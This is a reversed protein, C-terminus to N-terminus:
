PRSFEVEAPRSPEGQSEDPAQYVIRYAAKGARPPTPDIAESGGLPGTVHTWSDGNGVRRQVVAGAGAPPPSFTIKVHRFPSAVLVAGPPPPQPLASSGVRVPRPRNPESRNGAADIAVLSYWYSEGVAVLTDTFSHADAALPGAIVLGRDTASGSRLVLIGTTDGAPPAPAFQVTVSGGNGSLDLTRPPAPPITDPLTAKVAESPASEQNDFAVAIIRYRLSVGPSFGLYDDMVPEPVVRANMRVWDRGDTEQREVFYGAVRVLSPRWSVRVRSVGAEAKVGTVVPPAAANRPRAMAPDCPVGANGRPGVAHVRYYYAAGGTLGGEEFRGSAGSVPQTAVVTYPGEALPARSVVYGATHPNKSVTWLLTAANAGAEARLDVPPDLAVIDEVYVALEVPSSRRGFMDVSAVRYTADAERPALPDLFVPKGPEHQDSLLIPRPTRLALKGGPGFREVVFGIVPTVPDQPPPNWFLAVADRRSLARLDSPPAPPPPAHRADVPASRAESVPRGGGDLGTVRYAVQGAGPDHDTFRVGLARGFALDTAARLSAVINAEDRQDQTATGGTLVPKLRGLLEADAPDLAALAAPDGGVTVRDAVISTRGGALREVRWGGVPWTASKPLWFIEVGGTGDPSALVGPPEGAAGLSAALVAFFVAVILTHPRRM